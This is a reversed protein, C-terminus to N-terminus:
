EYKKKWKYLRYRRGFFGSEKFTVFYAKKDWSQILTDSGNLRGVPPMDSFLVSVQDGFHVLCGEFASDAPIKRLYKKIGGPGCYPIDYGQRRKGYIALEACDSGISLDTQHGFGPIKKPIGIFPTNLLEALYGKYSDDNRVILQIINEKELRYLPLSTKITDTKSVQFSDLYAFYYTGPSQIYGNVNFEATGSGTKTFFYSIREVYYKSHRRYNYYGRLVPKIEYWTRNVGNKNCNASIVTSESFKMYVPKKNGVANGNIYYTTEDQPPCCLIFVLMYIM